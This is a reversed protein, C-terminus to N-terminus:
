GVPEQVAIALFQRPKLGGRLADRDGLAEFEVALNILVLRNGNLGQFSRAALLFVQLFERLESGSPLRTGGERSKPKVNIRINM